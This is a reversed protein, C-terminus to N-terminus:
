LLITNQLEDNHTNRQIEKTERTASNIEGRFSRAGPLEIEGNNGTIVAVDAILGEPTSIQRAERLM